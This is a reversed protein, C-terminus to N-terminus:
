APHTVFTEVDGDTREDDSAAVARFYYETDAELDDVTESFTGVSNRTQGDTRADFSAGDENVAYEFYVEAETDSELSVLEGNLEASHAGDPNAKGTTVDTTDVASAVGTSAGVTVLAAGGMKQLAVRRGVETDESSM